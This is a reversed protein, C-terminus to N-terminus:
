CECRVISQRANGDTECLTMSKRGRLKQFGDYGRPGSKDHKERKQVYRAEVRSVDLVRIGRAAGKLM